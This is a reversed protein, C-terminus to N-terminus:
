AYLDVRGAEILQGDTAPVPILSEIEASDSTATGPTAGGAFAQGQEQGQQRHEGVSTDGLSIGQEALAERLQPIAQEVAQRVPAHASLFQAQAGQESVKLSITLPGLEAPNLRLEVRQEGGRQGLMVLQQGLQTPWAQSAVPAQLAGQTPSATVAGPATGNPSAVNLSALGDTRWEGSTSSSPAAPVVAERSLPQSLAEALPPQRQASLGESGASAVLPERIGQQAAAAERLTTHTMPGAATSPELQSRGPEMIVGALQGPAEPTSEKIEQTAFLQEPTFAEHDLDEAALPRTEAPLSEGASAMLALRKAIEALPSEDLLTDASADDGPSGDLALMMSQLSAQGAPSLALEALAPAPEGPMSGLAAMAEAFGRGADADAYSAGANEAPRGQVALGTLLLSIDM